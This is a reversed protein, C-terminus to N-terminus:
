GGATLFAQVVAGTSTDRATVQADVRSPSTAQATVQLNSILGADVLVGLSRNLEVPVLVAPNRAFRDTEDLFSGLKIDHWCRAALCKLQLEIRTQATNTAVFSGKGDDILDGTAPDFALTYGPM